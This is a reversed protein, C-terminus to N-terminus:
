FCITRDSSALTEAITFMNSVTGVLVKDKLHFYDLCTGCVLLEVGKEALRKLKEIHQSDECVLKVGANMFVIANPRQGICSLTDLFSGILLAGLREEPRGLTDSTILVTLKAVSKHSERERNKESCRKSAKKGNRGKASRNPQPLVIEISFLEDSETAVEADAGSNKAL